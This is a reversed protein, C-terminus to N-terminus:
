IEAACAIEKQVAQLLFTHLCNTLLRMVGPHLFLCIQSEPSKQALRTTNLCVQQMLLATAYYISNELLPSTSSNFILAGTTNNETDLCYHLRHPTQPSM